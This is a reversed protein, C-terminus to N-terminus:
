QSVSPNRNVFDTEIEPSHISKRGYTMRGYIYGKDASAGAVLSARLFARLLEECLTGPHSWDNTPGLMHNINKYQTLMLDAQAHFFDILGQELLNAQPDSSM